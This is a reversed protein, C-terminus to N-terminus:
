RPSLTFEITNKGAVVEVQDPTIKTGCSIPKYIPYAKDIMDRIEQVQEPTRGEYELPDLPMPKTRPSEFFVDHRGILAGMESASDMVVEMQMEFTGDENVIASAMRGPEGPPRGTEDPADIPRFRVIGGHAPKGNCLVTGTVPATQYKSSSCASLVCLMTASLAIRAFRQFM